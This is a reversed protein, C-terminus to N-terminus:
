KKVYRRLAMGGTLSGYVNGNVDAVVGEQSGNPDPDDIFATVEGDTVSGIRVGEKWGPNTEADSSSDTVYLIDNRDIFIGSPRGFQRWEDLFTGDQDFIQIRSNGRDGVFLRGSADMALAHSTEFEGPGTGAAGWTKIFTGDRSFKVIRANSEGGHGDGVFIDGSPAVFVASPENFEDPGDGAVGAKGLTMLLAGDPSFKFVQHGKGDRRPDEGDPGEGDTVWVNGEPDVHIGHPRVFMGAGFSRVLNGSADFKQIPALDSGACWNDGCRDYTWISSGDRDLAIGATSGITREEPLIFFDQSMSYPENGANVEENIQASAWGGSVAFAVVGAAVSFRVYYAHRM